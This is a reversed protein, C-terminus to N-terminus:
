RKGNHRHEKNRIAIDRKLQDLRPDKHATLGHALRWKVRAASVRDTVAFLGQLVLMGIIYVILGLGMASIFPGM